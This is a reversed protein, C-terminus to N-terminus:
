RGDEAEKPNWPRAVGTAKEIARIQEIISRYNERAAKAQRILGQRYLLLAM